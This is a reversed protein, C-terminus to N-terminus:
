VEVGFLGQITRRLQEESMEGFVRDVMEGEASVFVTTPMALVGFARAADGEPDFALRYRVGTERVLDLADRRIDRNDIGLFAVKGDVDEYVSQLAPMERRCPGCWSAFFNVVLPRGRFDDIGISSDRARLDELVLDPAPGLHRGQPLARVRGTPEDVTVVVAVAVAVAVGGLIWGRRRSNM